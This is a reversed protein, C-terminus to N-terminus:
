LIWSESTNSWRHIPLLLLTLSSACATFQAHLSFWNWTEGTFIKWCNWLSPGNKATIIYPVFAILVNHSSILGPVRPDLCNFSPPTRLDNDGVHVSSIGPFQPGEAEGASIVDSSPCHELEYLMTRSQFHPLTPTRLYDSPVMTKQGKKLGNKPRIRFTFTIPEM